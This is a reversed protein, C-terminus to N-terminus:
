RPVSTATGKQPEYVFLFEILGNRLRFSNAVQFQHMVASLARPQHRPCPRMAPGGYEYGLHTADIIRYVTIEEPMKPLDFILSYLLTGPKCFRGVYGILSAVAPLELYNLLDWALIVDFRRGEPLHLLREWEPDPFTEGEAPEAPPPLPLSSHLDAVYISGSFQSWFEINGGRAPGLELIDCVEAGELRLCLANLGLTSQVVPESPPRSKM